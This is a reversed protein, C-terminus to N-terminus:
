VGSVQRLGVLQIERFSSSSSSSIVSCGQPKNLVSHLDPAHEHFMAGTSFKCFASLVLLRVEANRPPPPALAACKV